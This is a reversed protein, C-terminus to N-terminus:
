RGPIAATLITEHKMHVHQPLAIITSSGNRRLNGVRSRQTSEHDYVVQEILLLVVLVM